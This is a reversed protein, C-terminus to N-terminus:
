SVALLRTCNRSAAHPHRTGGVRSTKGGSSAEGQVPHGDMPAAGGRVPRGDVQAVGGHVPHGDVQAAGGHVPHEAM